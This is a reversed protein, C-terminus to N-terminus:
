TVIMMKMNSNKFLLAKLMKCWKKLDRLEHVFVV